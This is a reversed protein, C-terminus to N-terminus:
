VRGLLLNFGEDVRAEWGPPVLTTSDEQTVLAPGVLAM